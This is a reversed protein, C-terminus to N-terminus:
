FILLLLLIILLETDNENCGLMFFVILGILILNENCFLNDLGKFKLGKPLIKSFLSKSSPVAVEEVVPISKQEITDSVVDSEYTVTNKEAFANGSYDDPVSVNQPHSRTNSGIYM